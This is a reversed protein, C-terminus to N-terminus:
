IQSATIETTQIAVCRWGNRQKVYIQTSRLYADYPTGQFLAQDHVRCALVATDGYLRVAIEDLEQALWKMNGSVVFFQLYAQKDFAHGSANIYSFDDSLILELIRVDGRVLADSRARAFQAVTQALSSSPNM